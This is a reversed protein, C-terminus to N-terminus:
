DCHEHLNHYRHRSEGFCQSAVMCVSNFHEGVAAKYHTFDLESKSLREQEIAHAEALEGERKDQDEIRRRRLQEYREQTQQAEEWYFGHQQQQQVPAGQADLPVMDLEVDGKPLTFVESKQLDGNLHLKYIEVQWRAQLEKLQEFFDLLDKFHFEDDHERGGNIWVRATRTMYVLLGFLFAQVMCALCTSNFRSSANVFM